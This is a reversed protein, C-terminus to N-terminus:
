AGGFPISAACRMGDSARGSAHYRDHVNEEERGRKTRWVFVDPKARVTTVQSYMYGYPSPIYWTTTLDVTMLGFPRIGGDGVPLADPLRLRTHSRYLRM